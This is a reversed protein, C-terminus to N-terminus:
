QREMFVETFKEPLDIKIRKIEEGMPFVLEDAILLQHEVGHRRQVIENIIANGYKNDGVVPAHLYAM